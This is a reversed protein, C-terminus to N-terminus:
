FIGQREENSINELIFLYKQVNVKAMKILKIIILKNLLFLNVERIIGHGFFIIFYFLINFCFFYLFSFVDVFVFAFFFM